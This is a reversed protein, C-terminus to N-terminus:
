PSFRPKPDFNRVLKLDSDVKLDIDPNLEPEHTFILM